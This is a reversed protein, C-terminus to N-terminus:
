GESDCPACHIVCHITEIAVCFCDLNTGLVTPLDRERLICHNPGKSCMCAETKLKEEIKM